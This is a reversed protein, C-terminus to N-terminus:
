HPEEALRCCGSRFSGSPQPSLFFEIAAIMAAVPVNGIVPKKLVWLRNCELAWRLSTILTVPINRWDFIVTTFAM